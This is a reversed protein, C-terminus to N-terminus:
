YIICCSPCKSPKKIKFHKKYCKFCADYGCKKCHFSYVSGSSKIKCIDCIWVGTNGYNREEQGSLILPHDHLLIYVKNGKSVQKIIMNNVNRYDHEKICKVCLDYNCIHCHLSLTNSLLCNDQNDCISCYWKSGNYQRMQDNSLILPHEHCDVPVRDGLRYNDLVIDNMKECIVWIAMLGHFHDFLEPAKPRKYPDVSLCPIVVNYFENVNLFKPLYDKLTYLSLNDISAIIQVPLQTMIELMVKGISYIDSEFSGGFLRVEPAMFGDTGGYVFNGGIESLGFDGIKIKINDIDGPIYKNALFINLCKLDGHIVGIQHIREIAALIQSIMRIKDLIPVEYNDLIKRLDGGECYEMIIRFPNSEFSIIKVCCDLKAVKTLMMMVTEKKLRSENSKYDKLLTTFRAQNDSKLRIFNPGVKKEVVKRKYKQSYYVVCKGGGGVGITKYNSM